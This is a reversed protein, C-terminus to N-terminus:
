SRHEQLHIINGPQRDLIRAARRKSRLGDLLHDLQAMTRRTRRHQRTLVLALVALTALQLVAIIAHVVFSPALSEFNM